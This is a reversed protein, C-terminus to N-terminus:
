FNYLSLVLIIVKGIKIKLNELVKVDNFNLESTPVANREDTFISQKIESSPQPTSSNKKSAKM